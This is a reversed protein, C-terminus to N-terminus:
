YDDEGGSIVLELTSTILSIIENIVDVNSNTIEPPSSSEM